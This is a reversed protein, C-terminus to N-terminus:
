CSASTAGICRRRRRLSITTTRSARGRRPRRPPRRRSSRLAAATLAAAGAASVFAGKPLGAARQRARRAAEPSPARISPLQSRRRRVHSLGGRLRSQPQAPWSQESAILQWRERPTSACGYRAFLRRSGTPSAVDHEAARSRPRSRATGRRRTWAAFETGTSTSLPPDDRRSIAAQQAFRTTSSSRSGHLRPRPVAGRDCDAFVQEIEYESALEVDPGAADRPGGALAPALRARRRALLSSPRWQGAADRGQRAPGRSHPVGEATRLSSLTRQHPVLDYSIKNDTLYKQLTPAIM